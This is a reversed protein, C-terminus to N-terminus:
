AAEGKPWHVAGNQGEGVVAGPAVACAAATAEFTEGTGGNTKTWVCLNKQELGATEGALTLEVVHKWDMCGFLVAGPRCADCATVLADTLFTTFATRNLEGSAEAFERHKIRGKGSVDGGIKRNYPFDLFAADAKEGGMVTAVVAPDKGDGCALRHRGMAWVDGSRTVVDADEALAPVQDDKANGRKPSAEADEILLEDIEALDFGTDEVDFSQELLAKFSDTLLERDWSAEETIRNDAIAFARKEAETMGVVRVCPVMELGLLKAAEFRGHGGLIYNGEDIIIPSIFNHVKILRALKKIQAKPHTRANTPSPKLQSTAVSEDIRTIRLQLASVTTM